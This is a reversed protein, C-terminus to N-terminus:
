PRVRPEAASSSAAAHVPAAARAPPPALREVHQPEARPRVAPESVPRASARGSGGNFDYGVPPNVRASSSAPAVPATAVTGSAPRPAGPAPARPASAYPPRDAYARPQYTREGSPAATPVALRLPPNAAVRTATAPTASALAAIPVPRNGNARVRQAEEAFPLRSPPATRALTPRRFALQAAAPATARAPGLSAATPAIAPGGHTVEADLLSGPPVRMSNGAVRTADVFSQQAMATVAGPVRANAFRPSSIAAAAPRNIYNDNIYANNLYTTTVFTNSLNVRRFYRPSTRYTPVYVENWGLPFWAVTAGLGLGFRVGFGLQAGGVWAVLAPAYVPVGGLPGPCWAWRGNRFIWRGYHFPAFGWPAADVWTWGWPSIWNWHGDAYPAWDQAVRPEWVTGYSADAQWDGYQDLDEYGTMDRSVYRVAPAADERQDREVSWRDLVDQVPLARTEATLVGSGWFAGQQLSAVPFAQADSHITARGRLVSVTLYDEGDAVDLRYVGPQDLGVVGSPTDLTFSEDAGLHRLHVVLAGATLKLEANSDDIAVVEIGTGAGLRLATSGLHLEARSDVNAWLRDGPALPRNLVDGVWVESGAPALSVDGEALNVRAVRGPPDDGDMQALAPVAPLTLLALLWRALRRSRM